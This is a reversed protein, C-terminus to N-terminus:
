FTRDDLPPLLDALLRLIAPDAERSDAFLLLERSPEAGAGLLAEVARTRNLFVAWRLPSWGEPDLADPSAGSRLLYAVEVDNASKVAEFLDANVGVELASGPVAPQWRRWLRWFVISGMGAALLLGWLQPPVLLAVPIPRWRWWFEAQGRLEDFSDYGFRAILLQPEAADVAERVARHFENVGLQSEMYGFVREYQEYEVTPEISFVSGAGHDIAVHGRGSGSFHIAMGEHFWDPFGAEFIGAGLRANLFAHILEHSFTAARADELLNEQALSRAVPTLVAVYRTGITVAQAQPNAFARRVLAPMQQPGTFNRVFILGNPAQLGVDERLRRIGPDTTTSLDVLELSERSERGIYPALFEIFLDIYVRSISVRNSAAATDGLCDRLGQFEAFRQEIQTFSDVVPNVLTEFGSDSDLLAAVELCSVSDLNAPGLSQRAGVFAPCWVQFALLALCPLARYRLRSRSNGVM